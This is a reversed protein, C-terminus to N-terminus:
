REPEYLDLLPFMYGSQKWKPLARGLFASVFRFCTELKNGSRLVRLLRKSTNRRLERTKRGGAACKAFWALM